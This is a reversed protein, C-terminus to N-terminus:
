MDSCQDTSDSIMTLYGSKLCMYKFNKGVSIRIKNSYNRLTDETYADKLLNEPKKVYNEPFFREWIKKWDRNATFLLTDEATMFKKTINNQFYFTDAGDVKEYEM